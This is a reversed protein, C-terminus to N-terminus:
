GRLRGFNILKPIIRLLTLVRHQAVQSTNWHQDVETTIRIGALRAPECGFIRPSAPGMYAITYNCGPRAFNAGPPGRMYALIAARARCAGPPGGLGAAPGRTSAFTRAHGAWTRVRYALPMPPPGISDGFNHASQAGIRLIYALSHKAWKCNKIM